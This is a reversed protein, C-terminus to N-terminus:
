QGVCKLCVDCHDEALWPFVVVRLELCVPGDGQEAGQALCPNLLQIGSGYVLHIRIEM